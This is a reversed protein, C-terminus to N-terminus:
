KKANQPYFVYCTPYMLDVIMEKANVEYIWHKKHKFYSDNILFKNFDRSRNDKDSSFRDKWLTFNTCHKIDNWKYKFYDQFEDVLGDQADKSFQRNVAFGWVISFWKNLVDELTEVEYKKFSLLEPAPWFREENECLFKHVAEVWDSIRGWKKLNIKDAKLQINAIHEIDEETLEIWCNYKLNIAPWFITCLNHQFTKDGQNLAHFLAIENRNIDKFKNM